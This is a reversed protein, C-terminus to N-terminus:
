VPHIPCVCNFSGPEVFRLHQTAIARTNSPSESGFCRYGFRGAQGRDRRECSMGALDPRRVVGKPRHASPMETALGSKSGGSPEVIIEPHFLM